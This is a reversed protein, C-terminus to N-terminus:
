RKKYIEAGASQPGAGRWVLYLLGTATLSGWLIVHVIVAFAASLDPPAGYAELGLATFYDFTGIYGPSSPILTSLTGTAMSFWSGVLDTGSNVAIAVTAFVAGEFLWALVSLVTLLAMWVPSGALEFVEFFNQGHEHIASRWSHGGPKDRDTARLLRKRLWPALLIGGLTVAFVAGTLYTAVVVFRQPFAGEPVWLFGLFFFGLLVMMDLLRELVLTSLLRSAPSRLQGRFGFVRLADGARFPLVNNVAVSTLLPWVCNRFPLAPELARLICWWRLIRFTYGIGLFVLALLLLGPPINAVALYLAELDLKQAVLWVFVFTVAIGIGLKLWRMAGKPM